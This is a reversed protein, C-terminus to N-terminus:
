AIIWIHLKLFKVRHKIFHRWNAKQDKSRYRFSMTLIKWTMGEVIGETAFLHKGIGVFEKEWQVSIAEM